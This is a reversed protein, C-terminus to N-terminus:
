YNSVTTESIRYQSYAERHMPYPAQLVNANPYFRRHVSDYCFVDAYTKLAEWIASPLESRWLKEVDYPGGITDDETGEDVKQVLRLFVSDDSAGWQIQKKM